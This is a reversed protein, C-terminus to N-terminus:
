KYKPVFNYTITGRQNGTQTGDAPTFKSNKAAAVALKRTEYDSVTSGKDIAKASIVNGDKDVWIEVVVRGHQVKGEGPESLTISGRGALDLSIGAVAVKPSGPPTPPEPFITTGPSIPKEESVTDWSLKNIFNGVTDTKEPLTENNDNVLPNNNSSKPPESKQTPTKPPQTATTSKEVDQQQPLEDPVNEEQELIEEVDLEYELTVVMDEEDTPPTMTMRLFWLLLFVIVMFILTGM